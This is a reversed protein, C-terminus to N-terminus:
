KSKKKIKIDSGTWKAKVEVDKDSYKLKSSQTTKLKNDNIKVPFPIIGTCPRRFPVVTGCYPVYDVNYGVVTQVPLYGVNKGNEVSEKANKGGM